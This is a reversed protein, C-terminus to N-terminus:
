SHTTKDVESKKDRDLFALTNLYKIAIAPTLAVGKPCLVKRNECTWDVCLNLMKYGLKGKDEKFPISDYKTIRSKIFDSDGLEFTMKASPTLIVGIWDVIEYWSAAEDVATGLLVNNEQDVYYEGFSIAGRLPLGGKLADPIIKSCFTTLMSVAYEGQGEAYLIITDSFGLSEIGRLIGDEKLKEEQIANNFDKCNDENEKKIKVFSEMLSKAREGAGKWGLVDLFVVAGTKMNM